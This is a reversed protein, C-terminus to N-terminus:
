LRKDQPSWLLANAAWLLAAQGHFDGARRPRDLYEEFTFKENTGICVEELEGVMKPTVANGAEPRDLTILALHDQKSLKITTYPM